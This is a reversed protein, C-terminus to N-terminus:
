KILNAVVKVSSNAVVQNIFLEVNANNVNASFTGLTSSGSNAGAPVSVTGYVTILATTNDHALVMESIQTNGTNQIQILLKGSNYDAKPFRYIMVPTAINTGINSNAAIDTVYTNGLLHNNGAFNTSNSVTLSGNVSITDNTGIVLNGSPLISNPTVTINVTSNAVSYSTSNISTNVTSNGVLLTGNSLHTNTSITLTAYSGNINGGRLENTVVLNNAGFTGWLQSTKAISSNGTNAYTINATLSEESFLYSLRNVKLVLSEWNDKIISVNAVTSTM